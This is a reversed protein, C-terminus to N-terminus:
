SVILNRASCSLLSRLIVTLLCPPLSVTFSGEEAVKKDRVTYWISNRYQVLDQQTVDSPPDDYVHTETLDDSFRVSRVAIRQRKRRQCTSADEAAAATRKHPLNGTDVIVAAVM